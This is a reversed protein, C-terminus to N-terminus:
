TPVTELEYFRLPGSKAYFLGLGLSTFHPTLAHRYYDGPRRRVDVDTKSVDCVEDIDRLTIAELYLFGRTMAAINEIARLADDDSLYPLVGQCVILDFRESSRWQAIDRCEHGYRACAYASADVSVYRVAPEEVQFFSRWFGPGAGVDLVSEVDGGLWRVMGVVGRALNAIQREGYVRTGGREYYREFYAADFGERGRLAERSRRRLSSSAPKQM